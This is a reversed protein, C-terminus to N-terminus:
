VEVGVEWVSISRPGSALGDLDAFAARFRPGRDAPPVAAQAERQWFAIMMACGTGAEVMGVAGSFGDEALLAPVLDERVIREAEARDCPSMAARIVQAYV